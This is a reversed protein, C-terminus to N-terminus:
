WVYIALPIVFANTVVVSSITVPVRLIEPISLLPGTAAGILVGSSMALLVTLLLTSLPRDHALAFIVGSIGFAASTGVFASLATLLQSFTGQPHRLVLYSVGVGSGAFLTLFTGLIVWKARVLTPRDAPAAAISSNRVPDVSILHATVVQPSLSIGSQVPADIPTASLTAVLLLAATM